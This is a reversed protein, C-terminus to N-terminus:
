STSYLWGQKWAAKYVALNHNMGILLHTYMSTINMSDLQVAQPNLIKGNKELESYNTGAIIIVVPHIILCGCLNIDRHYYALNLAGPIVKFLLNM